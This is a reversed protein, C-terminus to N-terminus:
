VNRSGSNVKLVHKLLHNGLCKLHLVEGSEGEKSQEKVVSDISLTTNRGHYFFTITYLTTSITSM